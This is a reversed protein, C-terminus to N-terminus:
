ICLSEGYRELETWIRSFVPWNFESYPCKKGLSDYMLIVFREVTSMISEVDAPYNETILWDIWWVSELCDLSNKQKEVLHQHKTADQWAMFFYYFKASIQHSFIVYRLSPYIGQNREWTLSIWIKVIKIDQMAHIRLIVVDYRYGCHLDHCKQLRQCSCRQRPYINQHRSRRPQM